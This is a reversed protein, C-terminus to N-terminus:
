GQCLSYLTLICGYLWLLYLWVSQEFTTYLFPILSQESKTYLIYVTYYCMCMCMIKALTISLDSM